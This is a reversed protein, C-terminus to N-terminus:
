ETPSDKIGPPPPQARAYRDFPPRRGYGPPPSFSLLKSQLFILSSTQLQKSVLLQRHTWVGFLLFISCINRDNKFIITFGGIRLVKLM